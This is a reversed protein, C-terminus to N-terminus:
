MKDAATGMATEAETVTKQAAPGIWKAAAYIIVGIIATLVIIYELTSQGRKEVERFM